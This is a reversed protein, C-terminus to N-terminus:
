QHITVLVVISCVSTSIRIIGTALESVKAGSLYFKLPITAVAASILARNIQRVAFAKKSETM